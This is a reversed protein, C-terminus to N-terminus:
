PETLKNEQWQSVETSTVELILIEFLKQPISNGWFVAYLLHFFEFYIEVYQSLRWPLSFVTIPFQM